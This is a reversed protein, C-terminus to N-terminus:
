KKRTAWAPNGKPLRANEKMHAKDIAQKIIRDERIEKEQLRKRIAKAEALKDNLFKIYKQMAPDTAKKKGEKASAAFVKLAKIFTDVIAKRDEKKLRIKMIERAGKVNPSVVRIRESEKELRNLYSLAHLFSACFEDANEFSHGSGQSANLFNSENIFSFFFKNDYNRNLGDFPV